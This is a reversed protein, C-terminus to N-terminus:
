AKEVDRGLSIEAFMPRASTMLEHRLTRQIYRDIEAEAAERTVPDLATAAALWDILAAIRADGADRAVTMAAAGDAGMIAAAPPAQEPLINKLVAALDSQAQLQPALFDVSWDARRKLTELMFIVGFAQGRAFDGSTHPIIERRLAEIM